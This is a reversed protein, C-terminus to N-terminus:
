IWFYKLSFLFPNLIRFLLKGEDTLLKDKKLDKTSFSTLIFSDNSNSYSSPQRGCTSLLVQTNNCKRYSEEFRLASWLNYSPSQMELTHPYCPRQCLSYSCLENHIIVNKFTCLTLDIIRGIQVVKWTMKFISDLWLVEGYIFKFHCSLKLSYWIEVNRLSIFLFSFPLRELTMYLLWHFVRFIFIFLIYCHHLFNRM